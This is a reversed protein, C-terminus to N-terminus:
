PLPVEYLPANKGESTILLAKSDARFCIAEGQQSLPLFLRRPRTKLAEALTQGADLKWLYAAVYTRLVFQKGNPAFDGGTAMREADAM